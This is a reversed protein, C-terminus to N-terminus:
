ALGWEGVAERRAWLGDGDFVGRQKASEVFGKGDGGFGVLGDGDFEFLAADLEDDLWPRIDGDVAFFDALGGHRRVGRPGADVGDLELHFVLGGLLDDVEFGAASGGDAVREVLLRGGEVRCCIGQGVCGLGCSSEVLLRGGEVRCGLWKCAGVQQRNREVLLRGGEM